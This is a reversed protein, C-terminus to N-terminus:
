TGASPAPVDPLPQAGISTFLDGADLKGLDPLVLGGTEIEDLKFGILGINAHHLARTAPVASCIVAAIEQAADIVTTIAHHAALITAGTGAVCDVYLVIEYATRPITTRYDCVVKTGDRRLGLMCFDAGGFEAAFSPYLLAGGRLIIVCLMEGRGGGPGPGPGAVGPSGHVAQALSQGLRNINHRMLATPQSASSMAGYLNDPDPVVQRIITM